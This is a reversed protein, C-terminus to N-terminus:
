LNIQMLYKSLKMRAQIATSHKYLLLAGKEGKVHERM